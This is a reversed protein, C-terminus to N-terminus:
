HGMYRKAKLKWIYCKNVLSIFRKQIIEDIKLLQYTARM